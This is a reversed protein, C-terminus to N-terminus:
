AGAAKGGPFSGWSGNLLPQTFGLALKSTEYFVFFDRTGQRPNSGPFTWRTNHTHQLVNGRLRSSCRIDNGFLCSFNQRLVRRVTTTFVHHGRTRLRYNHLIICNAITIYLDESKRFTICQLKTTVSTEPSSSGQLHSRCTTGFPRYSGSQATYCGLLAFTKNVGRRLGAIVYTTIISIRHSM